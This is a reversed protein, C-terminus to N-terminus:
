IYQVGWLNSLCPDLNVGRLSLLINIHVLIVISAIKFYFVSLHMVIRLLTWTLIISKNLELSLIFNSRMHVICVSTM